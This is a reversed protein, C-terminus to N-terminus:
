PGAPNESGGTAAEAAVDILLELATAVARSRIQERGTSPFRREFSRVVGDLACAFWVLGVPKEPTGGGPGAVGTVSLALRAGTRAAAGLAMAEAVPGSVAGFREILDAPVALDRVKAESSYTVFGARFVASIGAVETVRSALLGGTCSEALALTMGGAILRRGLERAPDRELESFVRAGFLGLFAEARETVRAAAEEVTGGLATLRVSLVGQDVTVGMLPQADRHMWQGVRDALVSESVGLLHFERVVRAGQGSHHEAIWPLVEEDLMGQMEHPPGPLVFLTSEGIALRFGPATGRRNALIEAGRPVLAQRLNSEPVERRVHQSYYQVVQRWADESHVLEVGASRAAAHRTVDDLTPGLGGTAIVVPFRACLRGLAAAISAEDDGAVEIARVDRGLGLLARAIAPSNLDPHKGVLLEDGIALIGAAERDSM